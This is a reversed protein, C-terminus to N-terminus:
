PKVGAKKIVSKTVELQCEFLEQADHEVWGPHPYYQTFEKSCSALVNANKDYLVARSSTTGQDLAMVYQAM